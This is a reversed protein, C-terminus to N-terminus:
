IQFKLFKKALIQSIKNSLINSIISEEILFLLITKLYKKKM